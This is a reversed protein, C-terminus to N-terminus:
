QVTGKPKRKIGLERRKQSCWALMGRASQEIREVLQLVAHPEVTIAFAWADIAARQALGIVDTATM